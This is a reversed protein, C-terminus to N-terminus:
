TLEKKKTSSIPTLSTSHASEILLFEEGKISVLFLQTKQSLARKELIAINTEPQNKFFRNQTKKLLILGGTALALLFFVLVMTKAFLAQFSPAPTNDSEKKDNPTLENTSLVQERQPTESIPESANIPSVFLTSFLCLILLFFNRVMSYGRSLYLTM